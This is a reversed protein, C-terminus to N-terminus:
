KLLFEKNILKYYSSDWNFYHKNMKEIAIPPGYAPIFGNTYLALTDLVTITSSKKNIITSLLISEHGLAWSSLLVDSVIQSKKIAIKTAVAQLTNINKALTERRNKYLVSTKSITNLSLFLAIPIALTTIIKQPFDNYFYALPLLVAMNLVLFNRQLMIHADGASNSIALIIYVVICGCLYGWFMKKNRMKRFYILLFTFIIAMLKYFNWANGLMYEHMFSQKFNALDLLNNYQNIEHNPILFLFSKMAYLILLLLSFQWLIRKTALFHIFIFVMILLLFLPHSFIGLILIIFYSLWQNARNKFTFNIVAAALFAMSLALMTEFVLGFFLHHTGLLSCLLFVIALPKNKFTNKILLFTFFYVLGYGLSFIYVLVELGFGLKLLLFAPLQAIIATYRNYSIAFNETQIFNFFSFASDLYLVRDLAFILSCALLCCALLDYIDYRKTYANISTMEM